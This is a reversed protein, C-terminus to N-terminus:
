HMFKQMLTKSIKRCNPFKELSEKKENKAHFINERNFLFSLFYVLFKNGKWIKVIEFVSGLVCVLWDDKKTVERWEGSSIDSM